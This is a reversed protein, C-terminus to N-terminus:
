QLAAIAPTLPKGMTDSWQMRGLFSQCPRTIPVDGSWDHSQFPVRTVNTKWSFLRM